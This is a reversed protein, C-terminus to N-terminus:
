SCSSSCKQRLIEGGLISARLIPEPRSISPFTPVQGSKLTPFLSPMKLISIGQEKLSQAITIHRLKPSTVEIKTPTPSNLNARSASGLHLDPIASAMEKLSPSKPSPFKQLVGARCKLERQLNSDQLSLEIIVVKDIKDIKEPFKVSELLIGAYSQQLETTCEIEEKSYGHTKLILQEAELREKAEGETEGELQQFPAPVIRPNSMFRLLTTEGNRTKIAYFRM